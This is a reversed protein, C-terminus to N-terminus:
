YPKQGQVNGAPDYQCVAIDGGNECRARACGIGITNKWVIQTYHCCEGDCTNDTWRYKDAESGWAAVIQAPTKPRHEIRGSRWKVPDSKHLNEGNKNSHTLKCGNAALQDAVQQASQELEASWALPPVDVVRRWKNHEDLMKGQWDAVVAHTSLLLSPNMTSASLVSPDPLVKGPSIVISSADTNANPLTKNKENEDIRQIVQELQSIRINIQHIYDYVFKWLSVGFIFVIVAVVTLLCNDNKRRIRGIGENM